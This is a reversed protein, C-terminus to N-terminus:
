VCGGGAAMTAGPGVGLRNLGGQQVELASRYKVTTPPGYLPCKRIRAPCPAMDVSGLFRGASDFFGVTLPMVVGKMWFKQDTDAAFTFVMGDYNALDRRAQLGQAQQQPTAAQVGCFHRTSGPLGAIQTVAFYIEPFGAIRSPKPPPLTTTTSPAGLSPNAPSNAGVALFALFSLVALAGVGWELWRRREPAQFPEVYARLRPPLGEPLELLDEPKV